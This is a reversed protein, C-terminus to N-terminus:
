SKLESGKPMVRFAITFRVKKAVRSPTRAVHPMSSDFVFLRGPRPYISKVIDDKEDNMIVTEGSWDYHWESHGFYIITYCGDLGEQGNPYDTHVMPCDGFNNANVLVNYPTYKDKLINDDIVTWLKQFEPVNKFDDITLRVVWFPYSDDENSLGVCSYVPSMLRKYLDEILQDSVLNDLVNISKRKLYIKKRKSM